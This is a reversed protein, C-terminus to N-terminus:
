DCGTQQNPRENRKEEMGKIVNLVWEPIDTNNFAELMALRRLLEEKDIM